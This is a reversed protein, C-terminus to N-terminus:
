VGITACWRPSSTSPPSTSSSCATPCRPSAPSTGPSCHPWPSYHLWLSYYLWLSHPLTALGTRYRPPFFWVGQQQGVCDICVTWWGPALWGVLFLKWHSRLYRSGLNWIIALVPAFFTAILGLCKVNDIEGALAFVGFSALVFLAMNGQQRLEDAMPAPPVSPANFSWECVKLQWLAAKIVHHFLWAIEELPLLTGTGLGTCKAPNFEWIGINAGVSDWMFAQAVAISLIFTIYSFAATRRLPDGESTLLTPRGQTLLFVTPVLLFIHLDWYSIDLGGSQLLGPGDWGTTELSGLRELLGPGDAALGPQEVAALEAWSLGGAATEMMQTQCGVRLLGGPPLTRLLPLRM